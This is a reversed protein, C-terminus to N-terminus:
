GSGPAPSGGEPAELPLEFIKHRGGGGSVQTIRSKPIDFHRSLADLIEANAKGDRAPSKVRVRYRRSGLAEVAPTRCNPRAEVLIRM